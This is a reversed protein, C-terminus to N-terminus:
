SLPMPSCPIVNLNLNHVCDKSHQDVVDVTGDLMDQIHFYEMKDLADKTNYVLVRLVMLIDELALNHIVKGLTPELIMKVYKLEEELARHELWPQHHSGLGQPLQGGLFGARQAGGLVICKTGWSLLTCSTFRRCM